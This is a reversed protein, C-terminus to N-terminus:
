DVSECWSQFDRGPQFGHCHGGARGLMVPHAVINMEVLGGFAV